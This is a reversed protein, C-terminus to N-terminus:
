IQQWLFEEKSRNQNKIKQHALGNLKNTNTLMGNLLRTSLLNLLIDRRLCIAM